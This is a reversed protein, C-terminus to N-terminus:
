QKQSHRAEPRRSAVYRTVAQILVDYQTHTRNTLAIVGTFGEGVFLGTLRYRAPLGPIVLMKGEAPRYKRRGTMAKRGIEADPVPLLPYDSFARVADWPITHERGLLPHITLGQQNVTVPPTAVLLLGIFPTLALTLLGSAVLFGPGGLLALVIQALAALLLVALLAAAGYQTIRNLTPHPHTHTSAM